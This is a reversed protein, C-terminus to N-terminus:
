EPGTQTADDRRSRQRTQRRLLFGGLTVMSASTATVGFKATIPDGQLLAYALGAAAALLLAGALSAVLILHILGSLRERDGTVDYLFQYGPSLPVRPATPKHSATRLTSTFFDDPEARADPVSTPLSPTTPGQTNAPQRNRSGAPNDLPSEFTTPPIKEYMNTDPSEATRSNAM